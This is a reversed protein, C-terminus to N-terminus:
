FGEPVAQIHNGVIRDIFLQLVQWLGKKWWRLGTVIGVIAFKADGM